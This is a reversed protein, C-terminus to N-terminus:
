IALSPSFMRMSKFDKSKIASVLSTSNNIQIETTQEKARKEKTIFRKNAEWKIEQKSKEHM